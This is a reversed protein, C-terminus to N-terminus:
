QPVMIHSGSWGIFVVSGDKTFFTGDEGHYNGSKTKRWGDKALECIKM